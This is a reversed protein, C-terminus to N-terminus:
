VRTFEAISAASRFQEIREEMSRDSSTGPTGVRGTEIESNAFKALRVTETRYFEVVRQLAVAYELDSGAESPSQTSGLPAEAQAKQQAAAIAYAGRGSPTIGLDRALEPEGEANTQDDSKGQSKAAAKEEESMRDIGKLKRKVGGVGKGWGAAGWLNRWLATALVADADGYRERDTDRTVSYSLAEDLGLVAGRQQTHMERMYGKVLRATQVGFRVRM